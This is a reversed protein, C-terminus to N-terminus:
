LLEAIPGRLPILQPDQPTKSLTFTSGPFFISGAALAVVLLVILEKKLFSAGAPEKQM